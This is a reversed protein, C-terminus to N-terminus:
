TGNFDSPKLVKSTKSYQIVAKKVEPRLENFRKKILLSDSDIDSKYNLIGPAHEQVMLRLFRFEANEGDNEIAKDLLKHGTKFLSLKDNVKNVLGAKKMLLAGEFASVGASKAIEQQSNILEIKDSSMAKYFDDRNIRSEQSFLVSNFFVLLSLLVTRAIM